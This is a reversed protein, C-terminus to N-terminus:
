HFGGLRHGGFGVALMLLKRAMAFAEVLKYFGVRFELSLFAQMLVVQLVFVFALVVQNFKPTVYHMLVLHGHGLRKGDVQDLEGFVESQM